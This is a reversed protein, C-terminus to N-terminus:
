LSVLSYVLDSEKSMRKLHIITKEYLYIVMKITKTEKSKYKMKVELLTSCHALNPRKRCMGVSTCCQAM